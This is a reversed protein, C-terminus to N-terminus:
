DVWETSMLTHDHSPYSGEERGERGRRKRGKKGEKGIYHRGVQLTQGHHCRGAQHVEHLYM